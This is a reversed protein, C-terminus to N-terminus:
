KGEMEQLKDIIAHYLILRATDTLEYHKLETDFIENIADAISNIVDEKLWYEFKKTTM